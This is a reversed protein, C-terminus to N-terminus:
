SPVRAGTAVLTPVRISSLEGAVGPRDTVGRIAAVLARRDCRKLQSIWEDILRQGRPDRAFSPGFMLKVVPRRVPGIGAVRYVAALLKDKRASAAPETGASTGLM